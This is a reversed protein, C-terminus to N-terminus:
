GRGGRRDALPRAVHPREVDDCGRDAIQLVDGKSRQTHEALNREDGGLVGARRPGQQGPMVYCCWSDDAVKVAVTLPPDGLDESVQGSRAVDGDDRFSASGADAIRPRREDLCGDLIAM